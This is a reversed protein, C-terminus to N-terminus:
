IKQMQINKEKKASFTDNKIQRRTINECIDERQLRERRQHFEKSLCLSPSSSTYPTWQEWLMCSAIKGTPKRLRIIVCDSIEYRHLASAFNMNIAVTFSRLLKTEYQCSSFAIKAKLTVLNAGLPGFNASFVGNRIKQMFFLPIQTSMPLFNLTNQTYKEPWFYPYSYEIM